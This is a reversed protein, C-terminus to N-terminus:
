RLKKSRMIRWRWRCKYQTTNVPYIINSAEPTINSAETSSTYSRFNPFIAEKSADPVRTKSVDLDRYTFELNRLDLLM